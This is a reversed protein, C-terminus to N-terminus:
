DVKSDHASYQSPCLQGLYEWAKVISDRDDIRGLLSGAYDEVSIANRRFLALVETATLLYLKTPESM